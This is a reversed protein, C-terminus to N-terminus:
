TTPRLRLSTSRGSNTWVEGANSLSPSTRLGSLAEVPLPTLCALWGCRRPVTSTRWSTSSRALWFDLPRQIEAEDAAAIAERLQENAWTNFRFMPQVAAPDM